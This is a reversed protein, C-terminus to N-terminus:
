QELVQLIAVFECMSVSVNADKDTEDGEIVSKDNDHRIQCLHPLPLLLLRSQNQEELPLPVLPLNSENSSYIRTPLLLSLTFETGM